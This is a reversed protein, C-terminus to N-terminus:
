GKVTSSRLELLTQTFPLKTPTALIDQVEVSTVVLAAAARAAHGDQDL